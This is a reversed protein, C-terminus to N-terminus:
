EDFSEEIQMTTNDMVKKIIDFSYGRSIMFAVTKQKKKFPNEFCKNGEQLFIYRRCLVM